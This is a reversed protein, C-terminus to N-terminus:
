LGFKKMLSKTKKMNEKFEQMKGENHRFYIKVCWENEFKVIETKLKNM